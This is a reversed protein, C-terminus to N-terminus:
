GPGNVQIHQALVQKFPGSGPPENWTEDFSRPRHDSARVFVRTRSPWLAIMALDIVRYFNDEGLYLADLAQDPTIIVGSRGAGHLEIEFTRPVPRGLKAEANTAATALAKEFQERFSQRNMHCM